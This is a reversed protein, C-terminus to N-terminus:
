STLPEVGSHEVKFGAEAPKKQDKENIQLM